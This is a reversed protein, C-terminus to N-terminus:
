SDRLGRLDQIERLLAEARAELRAVVAESPPPKKVKFYDPPLGLVRAYRLQTPEQFWQAKLRRSVGRREAEVESGAEAALM